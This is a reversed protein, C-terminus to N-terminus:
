PDRRGIPIFPSILLGVVVLDLVSGVVELHEHAVEETWLAYATILSKAFFTLFAATVFALKRNQTRRWALAALVSLALSILAVAGIILVAALHSHAM